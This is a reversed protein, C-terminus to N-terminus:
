GFTLTIKSHTCEAYKRLSKLSVSRGSEMRAVASQTTGMREALEQQTLGADSRARILADAIQFEEALAVYERVFAPDKHLEEKIRSYPVLTM